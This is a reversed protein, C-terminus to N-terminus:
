RALGLGVTLELLAALALFVMIGAFASGILSRILTWGRSWLWLAAAAFVLSWIAWAMVLILDKEGGGFLLRGDAIAFLLFPTLLLPALATSYRIATSVM